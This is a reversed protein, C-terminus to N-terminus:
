QCQVSMGTDLRYCAERSPLHWSISLNLWVIRQILLARVPLALSLSETAVRPAPKRLGGPSRGNATTRAHRMAIKREPM